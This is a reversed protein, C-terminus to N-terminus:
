YGREILEAMRGGPVHSQIPEIPDMRRPIDMSAGRRDGPTGSRSPERPPTQTRSINRSASNDRSSVSGHTGNEEDWNRRSVRLPPPLGDDWTTGTKNTQMPQLPQSPRDYVAPREYDGRYIDASARRPEEKMYSRRDDWQEQPRWSTRADNAEQQDRLTLIPRDHDEYMSGTRQVDLSQRERTDRSIKRQADYDDRLDEWRDYNKKRQKERKHAVIGKHGAYITGFILSTM